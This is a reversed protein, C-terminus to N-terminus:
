QPVEDCHRGSWHCALVSQAAKNQVTFDTDDPGGADPDSLWNWVLVGRQWSGALERLWLDIVRAQLVPDPRRPEAAQDNWEWPRRQANARSGIGIEAIWVPRDQSEAWMRANRAAERIPERLAAREGSDGLPPYLTLGLSDLLDTASFGAADSAAHFVYSLEGAFRARVAQVLGRWEPRREARKLETGVVLMEAGSEQSLTALPELAARYAAFWCAWGAEDTAGVRGHWTGEVVIQPKVIVRLGFRRASGAAKRLRELVPEPPRDLACSEALPQHLFVVFAVANAGTSALRELAQDGRESGFPARPHELLNAGRLPSPGACAALASALVALLARRM